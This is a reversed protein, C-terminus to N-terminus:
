LKTTGSKNIITSRSQKHWGSAQVQVEQLMVEGTGM